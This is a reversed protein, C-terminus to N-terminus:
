LGPVEKSDLKSTPWAAEMVIKSAIGPDFAAKDKIILNQAALGFTWGWFTPDVKYDTLLKQMAVWDSKVIAIPMEKVNYPKPIRPIGYQEGRGMMKANHTVIDNMDPLDKSGALQAAGAVESWVSINNKNSNALCQNLFEGLYYKKGDSGGAVMFADKETIKGTKIFGERIAMQCGFGALAGLHNYVDPYDVAGKDTKYRAILKDTIAAAAKEFSAPEKATHKGIDGFVPKDDALSQIPFFLILVVWLLNKM